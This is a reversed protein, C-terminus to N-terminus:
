RSGPCEERFALVRGVGVDEAQREVGAGGDGIDGLQLRRFQRLEIQPLGFGVLVLDGAQREVLADDDADGAQQGQEQGDDEDDLARHDERRRGRQGPRHEGIDADIEAEPGLDEAGLGIGVADPAGAGFGHERGRQHDEEEGIEVEAAPMHAGGMDRADPQGEEDSQDAEGDIVRRDRRADRANREGGDGGDAENQHEIEGGM